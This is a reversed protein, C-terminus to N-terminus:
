SAVAASCAQLFPRITSYPVAAAALRDRADAFAAPTLRDPRATDLEGRRALLSACTRVLV